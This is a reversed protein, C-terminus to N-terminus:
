QLESRLKEVQEKISQALLYDENASAEAQKQLLEEIQKQKKAKSAIREPRKGVHRMSKQYNYILDALEGSFVNYCNACGVYGTELLDSVRTKCYPCSLEEFFLKEDSFSEKLKSLEDATSEFPSYFM